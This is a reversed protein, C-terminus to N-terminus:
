NKEPKKIKYEVGVGYIQLSQNLSSDTIEFIIRKGRKKAAIRRSVLDVFDYKSIDWKADESDWVGSEDIEVDNVVKVYDVYVNVVVDSGYIDEFQRAWVYGYRFKKRRIPDGLHIASTRLLLTYATGEDSYGVFHRRVVGINDREGVRCDLAGFLEGTSDSVAWSNVYWNTYTRVQKVGVALADIDLVYVADHKKFPYDPNDDTPPNVEGWMWTSGTVVSLIYKGEYVIAHSPSTYSPVHVVGCDMEYDTPRYINRFKQTSNPTMKETVIVNEYTGKLAYIGDDSLYLLMGDVYQVTRYSRTGASTALRQFTVDNTPDYGNWAYIATPKFVVLAGFFEKVASISEGNDTIALIESVAKFYTPDGVESFYLSNPNDENGAVFIRQGRQEIFRCKRIVALNSDTEVNTVTTFTEGDWVVYNDNGILYCVGGVVEYDIHWSGWDYVPYTPNKISYLSMDMCLALIDNIVEDFSDIYSFPILRLVVDPFTDDVVGCGKRKVLGGRLPLDCNESILVQSELLQDPAAETNEGGTFDNVYYIEYAM